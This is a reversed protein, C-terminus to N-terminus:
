LRGCASNYAGSKIPYRSEERIVATGIRQLEIPRGDLVLLRLCKTRREDMAGERARRGILIHAVQAAHEAFTPPQTVDACFGVM